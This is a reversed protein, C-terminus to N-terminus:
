LAASIEELPPAVAGDMRTSLGVDRNDFRIVRYGRSALTKCFEPTWNTMQAGLGMILLLTPDTESGFSEYELNIGNAQAQPM